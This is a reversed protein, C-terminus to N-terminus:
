LTGIPTHRGKDNWVAAGAVLQSTMFGGSDGWPWAVHARAIQDQVVDAICLLICDATDDIQAGSGSIGLGDPGRGATTVNSLLFVYGSDADYEAVWDIRDISGGYQRVHLDRGLLHLANAWADPLDSSVLVIGHDETWTATLVQEDHDRFM